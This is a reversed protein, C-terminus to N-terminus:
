TAVDRGGYRLPPVGINCHMSRRLLVANDGPLREERTNVSDEDTSAPAELQEEWPQLQDKHALTLLEDGRLVMALNQGM